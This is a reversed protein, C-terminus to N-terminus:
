LVLAATSTPGANQENNFRIQRATVNLTEGERIARGLKAEIEEKSISNEANWGSSLSIVTGTYPTLFWIYQIDDNGPVECSCTFITADENANIVINEPKQAAPRVEIVQSTVVASETKNLIHNASLVFDGHTMNDIVLPVNWYYEGASEVIGTNVEIGDEAWSYAIKGLNHDAELAPIFKVNITATAYEGSSFLQMPYGTYDIAVEGAAPILCPNTAISATSIQNGKEDEVANMIVVHYLGAETAVYSSETEGSLLKSDKFWQYTLPYRSPDPDTATVSLTVQDNEGLNEYAKEAWSYTTIVPKLGTSNVLGSYVPRSALTASYDVKELMESDIPLKPLIKVTAPSTLLNFVIEKTQDEENIDYQVFRIAFKADGIESTFQNDLPWGFIIASRDGNERDEEDESDDAYIIDGHAPKPNISPDIPAEFVLDIAHAPTYAALPKSGATMWEIRCECESLDMQDFYRDVRFFLFEALHDGNVAVGYKQFHPPVTISRDNLNVLFLDEDLPIRAFRGIGRLNADEQLANFYEPLNTITMGTKKEAAAFLKQYEGHLIADETYSPVRVIM